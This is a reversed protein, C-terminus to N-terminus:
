RRSPAHRSCVRAPASHRFPVRTAATACPLRPARAPALPRFEVVLVQPNGPPVAVTTIALRSIVLRLTRSLGAPAIRLVMAAPECTLTTPPQPALIAAPRPPPHARRPWTNAAAIEAGITM